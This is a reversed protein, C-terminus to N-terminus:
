GTNRKTLLDAFRGLVASLTRRGQDGIVVELDNEEESCLIIVSMGTELMRTAVAYKSPSYGADLWVVNSNESPKTDKAAVALARALQRCGVASLSIGIDGDQDIYVGVAVADKTLRITATIRLAGPESM